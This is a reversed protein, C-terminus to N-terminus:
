RRDTMRAPVAHRVDAVEEAVLDVEVEHARVRDDSPVDVVGVCLFGGGFEISRLSLARRLSWARTPGRSKALASIYLIHCRMSDGTSACAMVYFVTTCRNIHSLIIFVGVRLVSEVVQHVVQRRRM